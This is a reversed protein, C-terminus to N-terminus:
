NAAKELEVKYFGNTEVGDLGSITVESDPGIEAPIPDCVPKTPWNEVLTDKRYVKVWVKLTEGASVNYIKEVFAGVADAAVLEASTTLTVKKAVTDLTISTIRVSDPKINKAVKAQIDEISLERNKLGTLMQAFEVSQFTSLSIGGMTKSISATLKGDGSANYADYLEDSIVLKRNIDLPSANTLSGYRKYEWADVIWDQDTDCDEIWCTM